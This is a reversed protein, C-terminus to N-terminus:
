SSMEERLAKKINKYTPPTHLGAPLERVDKKPRDPAPALLKKINAEPIKVTKVLYEEVFLVDNVCGALNGYRIEEGGADFRPTTYPQGADYGDIGILVAWKAPDTM